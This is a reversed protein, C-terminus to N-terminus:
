QENRPQNRQKIILNQAVAIHHGPDAKATNHHHQQAVEIGPLAHIGGNIIGDGEKLLDPKHESVLLGQNHKCSLQQYHDDIGQLETCGGIKYFVDDCTTIVDKCGHECCAGNCADNSRKHGVVNQFVTEHLSGREEHPGLEDGTDKHHDKAYNCSVTHHYIYCEKEQRQKCTLQYSNQDPCRNGVARIILEVAIM